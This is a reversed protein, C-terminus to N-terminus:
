VSCQWINCMDTGSNNQGTVVYNVSRTEYQSIKIIQSTTIPITCELQVELRPSRHPVDGRIKYTLRTITPSAQADLRYNWIHFTRVSPCSENNHLRKLYFQMFVLSVLFFVFLFANSHSCNKTQVVQKQELSVTCCTEARLEKTTM